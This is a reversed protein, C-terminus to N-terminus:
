KHPQLRRKKLEVELDIEKMQEIKRELTDAKKEWTETQKQLSRVKQEKGLLENILAMMAEAEDRFISRPYKDLMTRFADLSKRYDSRNEKSHALLLGMRFLAEDGMEPFNSVIEQYKKLAAPQDGSVAFQKAERLEREGPM